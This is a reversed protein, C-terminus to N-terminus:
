AREPLDFEELLLGFSLVVMLLDTEFPLDLRFGDASYRLRLREVADPDFYGQREIRERSLLDEVWSVQMRLLEPTGPAHFGFKEREVIVPPLLGRAMRRLLYKETNGRINLEPPVSRAFNVLDIDLFPYRAEVSNALAMRDGHDTLLHDALRLKFDLYSRQHMPHRGVLRRKNVPSERLCDFDDLTRSVEPAYLARRVERFAVQDQEYFLEASGWLHERLEEELAGALGQTRRRPGYHDFRYGVYGAFLEDAGEGTLIVRVGADSAAQSLALSCTNYTEKVPCECHYVMRRLREVIAQGDFLIEQHISRVQDAVLRQHAEESMRRDDFSISFSRFSQGNRAQGMVAAILSSDLGGSLYCGVPVDAQLRYRVAQGFLGHLEEVLSAEDTHPAIEAQLPYMLDWYEVKRSGSAKEELYHGSELSEIGRFLTRPSLVGPFCLVQDLGTLDVERSVGPYRLLSKIESAFILHDGIRTYHLPIIGFPDRALYLRRERRDYLAFAFQGNLRELLDIGHEEYLHVIVEVDCASRFSHGRGVLEARLAQYNFIEGNCIMVVSGDENSVPQAGTLPDIITLRRFGFAVNEDIFWGDSDPGRHLLLKAMGELLEPEPAIGTRFDAYGVLGCM